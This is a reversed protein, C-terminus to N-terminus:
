EKRVSIFRFVRAFQSVPMDFSKNESPLKPIFETSKTAIPKKMQDKRSISKLPCKTVWIRMVNIKESM